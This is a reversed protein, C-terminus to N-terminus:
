NYFSREKSLLTYKIGFNTYSHDNYQVKVKGSPLDTHAYVLGQEVFM